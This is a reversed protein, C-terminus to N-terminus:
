DTRLETGVDVKSILGLALKVELQHSLDGAIRVVPQPALKILTPTVLIRDDLARLPERLVDVVELDVPDLDCQDLIVDLSSMARVSNPSQDAIYLRLRLPEAVASNCEV